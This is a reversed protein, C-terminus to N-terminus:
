ILKFKVTKGGGQRGEYSRELIKRDVLGDFFNLTGTRGFPWIGSDQLPTIEKWIVEGTAEGGHRKLIKRLEEEATPEQTYKFKKTEKTQKDIYSILEFLSKCHEEVTTFAYKFSDLDVEEKVNFVAEQVAIKSVFLPIGGYFSTIVDQLKGTFQSKFYKERLEKGMEVIQPRFSGINQKIHYNWPTGGGEKYIKKEKMKTWKENIEKIKSYFDDSAQQGLAYDSKLMDWLNEQVYDNEQQSLIKFVIWMRQFFGENLISAEIDDIIMSGTMITARTKFKSDEGSFKLSKDVWGPEDLIVLLAQRVERFYQEKRFLSRGESFTILNYEKALAPTKVVDPVFYKGGGKATMQKKGLFQESGVLRAESVQHLFKSRLKYGLIEIPMEDILFHVVKIMQGKGTRSNDIIFPSERTSVYQAGWVFDIDNIVGLIAHFSPNYYHEMGIVTNKAKAGFLKKLDEINTPTM